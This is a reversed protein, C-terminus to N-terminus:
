FWDSRRLSLGNIRRLRIHPYSMRLLQITQRAAPATDFKKEIAIGLEQEAVRIVSKYYLVEIQAQELQKQLQHVQGALEDAKHVIREVITPPPQKPAQAMTRQKEEQRVRELWKTVTQRSLVKYKAMAQEITLRGLNIEEVMQRMQLERAQRHLLFLHGM